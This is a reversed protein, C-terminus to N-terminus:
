FLAHELESSLGHESSLKHDDTLSPSDALGLGLGLDLEHENALAAITISDAYEDIVRRLGAWFNSTGCNAQMPCDDSDGELCAVPNFSGESSRMIDGATIQEAPRTLLYGGQQGRVSKLLAAKTLVMALQELYKLSIGQRRSVESLPVPGAGENQAIDIVLRLSYRAKSSTKV